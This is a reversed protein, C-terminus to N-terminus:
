NAILYPQTFSSVMCSDELLGKMQRTFLSTSSDRKRNYNGTCRTCRDDKHKASTYATKEMLHRRPDLRVCHFRSAHAHRHHFLRWAWTSHRRFYEVTQTLNADQNGLTNSKWKATAQRTGNQIRATM